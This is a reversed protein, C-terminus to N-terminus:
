KKYGQYITVIGSTLPHFSINYLAAAEMIHAFRDGYPFSQITESLHSYANPFPSIWQAIRPLIHNLYFLYGAKILPSQPLSFELVLLVGGRKLVRVMENLSQTLNHLNRVGFSITVADFFSSSYPIKCVSAKELVVKSGYRLLRNKAIKIMEESLDIGVALDITRKKRLLALLQEGTGTACDLLHITSSPLFSALKSRWYRDIGCSFLHNLFNYSPAIRDFMEPIISGKDM